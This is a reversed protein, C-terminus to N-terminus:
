FNFKQLQKKIISVTLEPQELPLMHTGEIELWDFGQQKAVRKMREPLSITTQSASIITGPITKLRGKFKDTHHPLIDFIEVERDVNFALELGDDVINLGYQILDQFCRDHFNKFLRKSKFYDIAEKENPWHKRRGRTKKGPSFHHVINLREAINSLFSAKWGNMVIPEILILGSFLDPRLFAANLTSTAGFSHGIGIVKEDTQSSIYDVIEEGTKIWNKTIPYKPDHALLNKYILRYDDSLLEFLYSYVKAPFGNAHAFHIIPQNM